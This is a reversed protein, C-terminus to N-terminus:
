TALPYYLLVLLPLLVLSAFPVSCLSGIRCNYFILLSTRARLTRAILSAVTESIMPCLVAIRNSELLLGITTRASTVCSAAVCSAVLRTFTRHQLCRDSHLIAAFVSLWLPWSLAPMANIVVEFLVFFSPQRLQHSSKINAALFAFFYSDPM